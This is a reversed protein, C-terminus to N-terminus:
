WPGPPHTSPPHASLCVSKLSMDSLRGGVGGTGTSDWGELRQNAPRAPRRWRPRAGQPRWLHTVTNAQGKHVCRASPLNARTAAFKGCRPCISSSLWPARPPAKPCVLAPRSLSRTRHLPAASVRILRSTCGSGVHQAPRTSRSLSAQFKLEPKRRRIAAPFSRGCM